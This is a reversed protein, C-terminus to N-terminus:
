APIRDLNWKLIAARAATESAFVALFRNKHCFKAGAVGVVNSLEDDVLGAWEAPLPRKLGFGGAEDPIGLLRWGGDDDPFLVYDSAHHGGGQEFYARKWKYHRDFVLVRSGTAEANRMAAAVASSAEQNRHEMTCLGRLVGECLAAAELFRADFDAPSHAQEALIAVILSICPVGGGPSRRGNDVADIYDVWDARLQAALRAPLKGTDELWNLVMGASSLPGQYARQHHDFRRREPDYEGGVDIAVDAGAILAADRTRLLELEEGLFVRLLAYAFVEDAHFPGSHTVARM